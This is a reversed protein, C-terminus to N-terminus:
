DDLQHTVLSERDETTHYLYSNLENLQLKSFSFISKVIIISQIKM